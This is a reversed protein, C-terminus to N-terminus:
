ASEAKKTTWTTLEFLVACDGDDNWVASKLGWFIKHWTIGDHVDKSYSGVGTYLCVREGKKVALSSFWKVHRHENSIEKETTFTSDMVMYHTLDCDELVTFLVREGRKKDKAVVNDIRLKM